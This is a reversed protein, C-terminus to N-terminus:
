AAALPNSGFRNAGVEGSLGALEVGAWILVVLFVADAVSNLGTLVGILAVLVPAAFWGSRGRDHLRKSLICAAFYLAVPYVAWGTIWHLAAGVVAEYFVMVGLLIAAAIWFSARALRGDATVFLTKWDIPANM